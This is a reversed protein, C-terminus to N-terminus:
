ERGDFRAQWDANSEAAVSGSEVESARWWLLGDSRYDLCWHLKNYRRAAKIAEAKSKAPFSEFRTWQGAKRGYQAKVEVVYTKM